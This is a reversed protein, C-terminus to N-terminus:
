QYAAELAKEVWDCEKVNLDRGLFERLKAALGDTVIQRPVGAERLMLLLRLGKERYTSFDADNRSSFLGYAALCDFAHKQAEDIRGLKILAEACGQSAPMWETPDDQYAEKLCRLAIQGQDFAEHNFGNALLADLLSVHISAHWGADYLQRKAPETTSQLAEQLAIAARASELARAPNGERIELYVLLYNVWSASDEHLNPSETALTMASNLWERAEAGKNREELFSGFNGIARVLGSDSLGYEKYARIADRYLFEIEADEDPSAENQELALALNQSVEAFIRSDPSFRNLHQYNERQVAICEKVRCTEKLHIAFFERLSIYDEDKEEESTSAHIARVHSELLAWRKLNEVTQVQNEDCADTRLIGTVMRKRAAARLEPEPQEQHASRQLLRHISCVSYERDVHVLALDELERLPADYESIVSLPLPDAAIWSLSHLLNKACDSLQNTTTRFTVFLSPPTDPRQSHYDKLGTSHYDRYITASTEEWEALYHTFNHRGKHLHAAVQEIALPLGDVLRAIIAANGVDDQQKARRDETLKLLLQVSDNESLIKLDLTKVGIPWPTLRSTVLIHGQTISTVLDCVADKSEPSDVNDIILLWGPHRQLWKLAATRRKNEDPSNHEPLDLVLEDCLGALNRNLAEPTDAVVFLLAAYESKHAWAYEVATRTKGVGGMGHIVAVSQNVSNKGTDNRLHLDRLLDERGIFATGLSRFPLNIPQQPSDVTNQARMLTEVLARIEAIADFIIGHEESHINALSATLTHLDKLGLFTDTFGKSIVDLQIELISVARDVHEIYEESQQFILDRQEASLRDIRTDLGDRISEAIRITADQADAAANFKQEIWQVLMLWPRSIDNYALEAAPLDRMEVIKEFALSMAAPQAFISTNLIKDQKTDLDKIHAIIEDISASKKLGACLDLGSLGLASLLLGTLAVPSDVGHQILFDGKSINSLLEFLTKIVVRPAKTKNAM